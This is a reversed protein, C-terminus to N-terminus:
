SAGSCRPPRPARLDHACGSRFSRCSGPSRSIALDACFLGLRRPPPPPPLSEKRCLWFWFGFGFRLATIHSSASSLARLARCINCAKVDVLM